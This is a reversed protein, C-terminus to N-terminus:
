KNEVTGSALNYAISWPVSNAAGKASEEKMVEACIHEMQQWTLMNLDMAIEMFRAVIANAEQGKEVKFTDIILKHM